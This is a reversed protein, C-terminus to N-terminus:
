PRFGAHYGKARVFAAAYAALAILPLLLRGPFALHKRFYRVLSKHSEWVMAKRNAQGTSAGHHHVVHGAASYWCPWGKDALRKLLDVDNFFIPFDEDFPASPDGVAELAKRRFLVFTGM